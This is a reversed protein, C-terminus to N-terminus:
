WECRCGPALDCCGGPCKNDQTCTLSAVQMLWVNEATPMPAVYSLITPIEQTVCWTNDLLIVLDADDMFDKEGKKPVGNFMTMPYRWTSFDLAPADSTVVKKNSGNGGAKRRGDAPANNSWKYGGEITPDLVRCLNGITRDVPLKELKILAALESRPMAKLQEVSAVAEEQSALAACLSNHKPGGMYLKAMPGFVDTLATAPGPATVGFHFATEPAAGLAPVPAGTAEAM